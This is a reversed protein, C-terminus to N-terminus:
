KIWRPSNSEHKGMNPRCMRHAQFLSQVWGGLKTPNQMWDCVYASKPSPDLPGLGGKKRTTGFHKVIKSQFDNQLISKLEIQFVVKSQMMFMGVISYAALGSFHLKWEPTSSEAGEKQIKQIRGQCVCTSVCCCKWFKVVVKKNNNSYLVM